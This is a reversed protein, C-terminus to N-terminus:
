GIGLRGKGEAERSWRKELSLGKPINSIKGVGVGGTYSYGELPDGTM